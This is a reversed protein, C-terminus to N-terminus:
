ILSYRVITLRFYKELKLRLGQDNRISKIKKFSFVFMILWLMVVISAITFFLDPDQQIQHQGQMPKLYLSIFIILSLLLLLLLWSHLKYFYQQITDFEM